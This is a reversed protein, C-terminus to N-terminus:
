FNKDNILNAALRSFTSPLSMRLLRSQTPAPRKTYLYALLQVFQGAEALKLSSSPDSADGCHNVLLSGGSRVSLPLPIDSLM